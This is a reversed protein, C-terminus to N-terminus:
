GIIQNMNLDIKFILMWVKLLLGLVPVTLVTCWTHWIRTDRYSVAYM